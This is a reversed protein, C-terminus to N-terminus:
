DLDEISLDNDSGFVPRHANGQRWAGRRLRGLLERLSRGDSLTVPGRLAFIRNAVFPTASAASVDYDTDGGHPVNESFPWTTPFAVASSPRV